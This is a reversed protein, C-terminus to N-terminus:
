AHDVVVELLKKRLNGVRRNVGNAFFDYHRQLAHDPGFTVQEVGAFLLCVPEIDWMRNQRVSFDVAQLINIFM